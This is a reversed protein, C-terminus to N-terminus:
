RLNGKRGSALLIITGTMILRVGAGLGYTNPMTVALFM